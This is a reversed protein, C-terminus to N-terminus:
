FKMETVLPMMAIYIRLLIILLVGVFHRYGSYIYVNKSCTRNKRIYSENLEKYVIYNSYHPVHVSSFFKWSFSLQYNSFKSFVTKLFLILYNIPLSFFTFILNDIILLLYNVNVQCFTCKFTSVFKTHNYETYTNELEFYDM